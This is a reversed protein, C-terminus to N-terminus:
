WLQTTNVRYDGVVWFNDIFHLTYVILLYKSVLAYNLSTGFKSSLLPSCFFEKCKRCGSLRTLM